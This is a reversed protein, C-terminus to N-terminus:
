PAVDIDQFTARAENANTRATTAIGAWFYDGYVKHPTGINVWSAGDWYSSQLEIYDGDGDSGNSVKTLRTWLPLGPDSTLYDSDDTAGMSDQEQYQVSLYYGWNPAYRLMLHAGFESSVTATSTGRIMLGTRAWGEPGLDASTLQASIETFTAADIPRYFYNFGSPDSHDSDWIHYGYSCIDATATGGDDTMAVTSMQNTGLTASSWQSWDEGGVTGALLSPPADCAPVYDIEIGELTGRAMSANDGSTAAIGVAFREGLDGLTKSNLKQWNTVEGATAVNDTAYWGTVTNGVKTLRLWVPIAGSNNGSWSHGSGENTRWIGAVQDDQTVRMFYHPASDSQTPNAPDSGLGRIMLGLRSYYDNASGGWDTVRASISFFIPDSSTAAYEERYAFHFADPDDYLHDGVACVSATGATMDLRTSGPMNVAGIDTAAWGAPVDSGISACTEMYTLSVQDYDVRLFQDDDYSASGFGVLVPAGLGDVTTSGIEIWSVASEDLTDQESYWGTITNGSKTLRLWTPHVYHHTAAHWAGSGTSNREDLDLRGRGDNTNPKYLLAAYASNADTSDRLMLGLKANDDGIGRLSSIHATISEFAGSSVDVDETRYVYRMNDSSNWTSNGTSCISASGPTRNEPVVNGPDGNFLTHGVFSTGGIDLSGFGGTHADVPLGEANKCELDLGAPVNFYAIHDETWRETGELKARAYVEYEGPIVMLRDFEGESMRDCKSLDSTAGFICFPTGDNDTVANVFPFDLPTNVQFYIESVGNGNRDLKEQMTMNEPVEGDAPMFAIVQFDTDANILVDPIGEAEAPNIFEIYLGSSPVTVRVEEWESWGFGDSRQARARVIYTGTTMRDFMSQTMLHDDSTMAYYAETDDPSPSTYFEYTYGGHEELIEFEVRAIDDGDKSLNMPGPKPDIDPDWSPVGYAVARFDTDERLEIVENEVVETGDGHTIWLVVNDPPEVRFSREIWQSRMGNTAVAQARITYVGPENFFDEWLRVVRWDDGLRQCQEPNGSDGGGGFACYSPTGESRWLILTGPMYENEGPARIEFEVTDIGVGDRDQLTAMPDVALQSFAVVRFRTDDVTAVSKVDDADWLEIDTFDTGDSDDGDAEREPDAFAIFLTATNTPTPTDTPTNTATPSPGDTPTNTATPSPGDTNTPTSTSTNVIPLTNTPSPTFPTPTHSPEPTETPTNTRTPSKTLTATMITPTEGDGLQDVPDVIREIHSRSLMIEEEFFPVFSFLLDYNYSVTVRLYCPHKPGTVLVNQALCADEDFYEPVLDGDTDAYGLVQVDIYEDVVLGGGDVDDYTYAVGSIGLREAEGTADNIVDITDDNDMDLLNVFNIGGGTGSEFRVRNRIENNHVVQLGTASDTALWRAGYSAGEQAANNLGQLTFFILGLDVAAALLLFILTAALAFEVIAQGATAVHERVQKLM